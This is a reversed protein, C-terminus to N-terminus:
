LISIFPVSEGREKAKEGLAEEVGVVLDGTSDRNELSGLSADYGYFTKRHRGWCRMCICM